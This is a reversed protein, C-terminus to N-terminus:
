DELTLLTAGAAVRDGAQVSLERVRGATETFVPVETKMAELLAIQNGAAIEQGAEVTYKILIGGM